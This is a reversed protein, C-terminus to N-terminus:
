AGRTSGRAAFAHEASRLRAPGVSKVIGNGLRPLFALRVDVEGTLLRGNAPHSGEPRLSETDPHTILDEGVRTRPDPVRPPGPPAPNSSKSSRAAPRDGRSREGRGCRGLFHGDQRVDLEGAAIAYYADGQDGQQILVTGAPVHVPTLAAALGEIAPAPLEAFLPLSRLLAIEVVPVPIGSDLVLLARGGALAALPLVVAGRDARAPKRGPAGAAARTTRRACVWGDHARRPRRLGPLGAFIAAAAAAMGAAQV